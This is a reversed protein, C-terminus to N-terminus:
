QKRTINMNSFPPVSSGNKRRWRYQFRSLKRGAAGRKEASSEVAFKRRMENRWVARPPWCWAAKRGGNRGEVVIDSCIELGTTGTVRGGVARQMRKKL